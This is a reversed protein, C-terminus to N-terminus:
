TALSAWAPVGDATGYPCRRSKCTTLFSREVHPYESTRKQSPNRIGAKQSLHRASPGADPLRKESASVINHMQAEYEPQTAVISVVMPEAAMLRPGGPLASVGFELLRPSPATPDSFCLAVCHSAAM